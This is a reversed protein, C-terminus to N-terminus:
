ESAMFTKALDYLPGECDFKAINSNDSISNIEEKSLKCVASNGIALSTPFPADVLVFNVLCKAGESGNITAEIKMGDSEFIESKTECEDFAAVFESETYNDQNTTGTTPQNSDTIVLNGTLEPNDLEPSFALPVIIAGAVIAALVIAGLVILIDM